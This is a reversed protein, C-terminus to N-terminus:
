RGRDWKPVCGMEGKRNERSDDEELWGGLNGEVEGQELIQGLVEQLVLDRILLVSWSFGLQFSFVGLM